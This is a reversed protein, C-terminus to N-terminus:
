MLAHINSKDEGDKDVYRWHDERSYEMRIDEEENLDTDREESVQEELMDTLIDKVYCLFYFM